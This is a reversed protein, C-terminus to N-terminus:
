LRIKVKTSFRKFVFYAILIYFVQLIATGQFPFIYFGYLIYYVLLGILIMNPLSLYNKTHILRYFIFAIILHIVASAVIGFEMAIQGIAGYFIHSDIGTTHEIFEWKDFLGVWDTGDILWRFYAYGGTSGKLDTWLQGAFNVFTEGSYKYYM